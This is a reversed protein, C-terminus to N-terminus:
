SAIVHIDHSFNEVPKEVPLKLFMKKIKLIKLLHFFLKVFEQLFIGVFPSFMAIM